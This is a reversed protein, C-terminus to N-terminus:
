LKQAFPFRSLCHCNMRLEHPKLSVNSVPSQYLRKSADSSDCDTRQLHRVTTMGQRLGSAKGANFFKGLVQRSSSEAAAAREMSRANLMMEDCLKNVDNMRDIETMKMEVLRKSLEANDLELTQVRQQAAEKETQRAQPLFGSQLSILICLFSERAQVGCLSVFHPCEAKLTSCFHRM